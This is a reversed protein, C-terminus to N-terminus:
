SFHNLASACAAKLSSFGFVDLDLSTPLTHMSFVPDCVIYNTSIGAAKAAQIDTLRDGIALSRSPDLSHNVIADSFLKPYPKRCKCKEAPSHPCHYIFLNERHQPVCLLRFYDMLQTLASSSYFGRGIGSQNTVIFVPVDRSLLSNILFISYHCVQFDTILHTYGTDKNIIGDRDLFLARRLSPM